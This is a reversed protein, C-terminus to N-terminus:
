FVIVNRLTSGRRVEDFAQNIDDLEFTRSVLTDLELQGADYDDVLAPIDRAPISSGMKSGLIRQNRAAIIGPDIQTTVGTAPMGVIVLAGTTAVLEYSQEIVPGHGVAVLVYDAMAGVTIAEVEDVVDIHTPDITHTAGLQQALSRKAPEPDIAILPRARALRAGQVANLGVGGCGVVVVSRDPEVGATNAVAGVGTLVGCALLAASPAPVTAPVPVVQSEHVVLAEAFAGTRLGHAVPAGSADTLPSRHDLAFLSTCAVQAGRQCPPCTGCWRILTVVVPQGPELDVGPGVATVRGAAEHGWVAPLEGGWLGDAYSVDSHCVACADVAVQVEAPGPPALTLDEIAMPENFARSVAARVTTGPAPPGPERM